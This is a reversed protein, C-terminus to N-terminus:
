PWSNWTVSSFAAGHRHFCVEGALSVILGCLHDSKVQKTAAAWELGGRHPLVTGVQGRQCGWGRGWVLYNPVQATAIFSIGGCKSLAYYSCACWLLRLCPSSIQLLYVLSCLRVCSGLLLGCVRASYSPLGLVQQSPVARHLFSSPLFCNCM